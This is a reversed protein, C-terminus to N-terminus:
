ESLSVPTVILVWEKVGQAKLWAKYSAEAELWFKESQNEPSGAELWRYYANVAIWETKWDM